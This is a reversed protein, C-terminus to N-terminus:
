CTDTCPDVLVAAQVVTDWDVLYYREVRYTITNTERDLAQDVRDPMTFVESRRVEVPGTAYIWEQTGTAAAHGLPTAGDVYGADPIVVTGNITRIVGGRDDVVFRDRAAILIQPSLHIIGQRRSRAIEAEMYALGMVVSTVSDGNPFTSQGDALFPNILGLRAGTLFEHAVIGSEVAGLVAVARAKFAAQEGEGGIGMSSCTEPVYATMPAFEPLPVAEGDDKPTRGASSPDCTVDVGGTSSPYPYVAVGNLWREIQRADLDTVITVGSAPAAAAQLLGYPPPLPTPGDIRAPPGFGIASSTM